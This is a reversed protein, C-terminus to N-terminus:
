NPHHKLIVAAHSVDSASCLTHVACEIVCTQRKAGASAPMPECTDSFCSSFDVVIPTGFMHLMRDFTGTFTRAFWGCM